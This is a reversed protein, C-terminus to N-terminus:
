RENETSQPAPQTARSAIIANFDNACLSGCDGEHQRIEEDSVPAKLRENERQLAEVQAELKRKEALTQRLVSAMDREHQTTQSM